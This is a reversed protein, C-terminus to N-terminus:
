SKKYTTLLSWLELNSIKQSFRTKTIQLCVSLCVSQCVFLHVRGDSSAARATALPPKIVIIYIRWKKYREAVTSRLEAVSRRDTQGDTVRHCQSLVLSQLIIPNEILWDGSSVIAGLLWLESAGLFELKSCSALGPRWALCRDTFVVFFASTRCFLYITIDRFRYCVPMYNCDFVLLFDCMPKRDTGIEIVQIVKFSSLSSSYLKKGLESHLLSHLFVLIKLPLFSLELDTSNVSTCITCLNVPWRSRVLIKLTM